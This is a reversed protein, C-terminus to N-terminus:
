STAATTEHDDGLYASRVAPNSAIEIPTGQAIIAGFDLVYIQDCVDMVLSVDHEVLLISCSMEKLIHKLLPAFVRTEAPDLGSSPEDLLLMKPATCLARGLELIRASGVPLDAARTDRAWEMGIAALIEEAIASCRAVERSRTPLHMLDSAISLKSHAAEAAVLLNDFVSMRSFLELRQFTRGIGLAARKNPQLKTIDQDNWRIRGASPQIFGSIVNFLTTKGAGNPGILGTIQGENCEFSAQRVATLGGFRVSIGEAVLGSM